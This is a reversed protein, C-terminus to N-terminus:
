RVAGQRARAEDLNMRVAQNGPDLALLQEWYRIAGAYDGANFRRMGEVYLNRAEDRRSPDLQAGRPDIRARLAQAEPDRPYDALISDAIAAAREREGAALAEVARLLQQLRALDAQQAALVAGQASLDRRVLALSDSAARLQEVAARREQERVQLSDRWSAMDQTEKITIVKLAVVAEPDDPRHARLGLWAARATERDPAARAKERLDEVTTAVAKEAAATAVAAKEAAAAAQAKAKLEESGQGLRATVSVVHVLGLEHAELGYDFAFFSAAFGLGLRYDKGRAGARGVVNAAVPIEVGFAFPADASGVEAEGALLLSRGMMRRSWTGALSLSRPLREAESAVTLAPALLNRARMGLALGHRPRLTLGIDVGLGTGSQSAFSQRRLRLAAGLDM